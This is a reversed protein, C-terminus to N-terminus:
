APNDDLWRKVQALTPTMKNHQGAEDVGDRHGLLKWAALFAFPEREGYNRMLRHSVSRSKQCGVHGTINCFLILRTYREHNEVGPNEYIIM